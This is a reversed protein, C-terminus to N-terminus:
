GFIGQGGDTELVGAPQMQNEGQDDTISRVGAWLAGDTTGPIWTDGSPVTSIAGMGAAAQMAGM